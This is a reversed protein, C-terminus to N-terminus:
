PKRPRLSGVTFSRAEAGTFFQRSAKTEAMRKSLADGAPSATQTRPLAEAKVPAATSASGRPAGSLLERIRAWRQQQGAVLELLEDRTATDTVGKAAETIKDIFPILYGFDKDFEGAAM